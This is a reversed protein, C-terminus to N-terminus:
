VNVQVNWVGFLLDVAYNRKALLSDVAREGLIAIGVVRPAQNFKGVALDKLRTQTADDGVAKLGRRTNAAGLSM